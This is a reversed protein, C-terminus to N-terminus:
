TYNIKALLNKLFRWIKLLVYLFSKPTLAILALMVINLKTHSLITDLSNKLININFSGYSRLIMFM